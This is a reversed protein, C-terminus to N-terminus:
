VEERLQSTFFSAQPTHCDLRSRCKRPELGVNMMGRQFPYGSAHEPHKLQDEGSRGKSLIVFPFRLRWLYSVATQFFSRFTSNRGKHLLWTM